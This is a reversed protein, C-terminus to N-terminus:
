DAWGIKSLLRIDNLNTYDYQLLGNKTVVIALKNFAIVDYSEFGKIHNTLKLNKVDVADYIKLGDTGDCIFLSNGDKSLGHPNTMPYTKVLSPATLTSIDLVDLQNSGQSCRVGSSLTVFAYKEDAIVPDCATLHNFQGIKAPSGQSTIDYIFMGSSSGIFLKDKFPYITEIGWGLSLKNGAVPHEPVAISYVNLNVDSVTYLSNSVITFRAMSGGMGFPSNAKPSASSALASFDNVVFCSACGWYGLGQDSEIITTDKRLWDTIIKSTDGVFGNSYRREPFANEVISTVAINLPNTIDISVLDTYLDAYLINGKAALDINGPIDIFAANKPASPNSNDIVHIGKDIENLYIYNGRIFLKGPRVITQSANSKINSRVESTKKYVPTYIAYTHTVKDKFCGPLVIIALILATIIGTLAPIKKMDTLKFNHCTFLFPRQM